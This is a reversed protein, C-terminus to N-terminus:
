PWIRTGAVTVCYPRKAASLKRLREPPVLHNLAAFDVDWYYIESRRAHDQWAAQVAAIFQERSARNVRCYQRRVGEFTGPPLIGEDSLSMTRGMHNVLSCRECTPVLGSMTAVCRDQSQIEHYHWQEHCLWREDAVWRGCCCRFDSDLLAQDRLKRWQAPSALRCLSIGFLPGPVLDIDCYPRGVLKVAMM